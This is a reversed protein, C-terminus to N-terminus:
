NGSDSPRSLNNALTIEKTVQIRHDAGAPYNAIAVVHLEDSSSSADHKKADESTLETIRIEVAAEHLLGLEEAAVRWHEGTYGDDRAVRAAARRLGAEALLATQTHEHWRTVQRRDRLASKAWVAILTMAVAYFAIVPIITMGNRSTTCRQM